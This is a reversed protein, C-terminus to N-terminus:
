RGDWEVLRLGYKGQLEDLSYVRKVNELERAGIWAPKSHPLDTAATASTHLPDKKASERYKKACEKPGSGNLERRSRRLLRDKINKKQGKTLRETPPPTALKPEAAGGCPPDAELEVPEVEGGLAEARAIADLTSFGEPCQIPQGL